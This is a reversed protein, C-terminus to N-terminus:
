TYCHPELGCARKCRAIGDEDNDDMTFFYFTFPRNEDGPNDVLGAITNFGFEEQHEMCIM